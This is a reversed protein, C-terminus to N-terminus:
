YSIFCVHVISYKKLLVTVSVLIPAQAEAIGISTEINSIRCYRCRYYYRHKLNLSVSVTVQYWLSFYRHIIGIGFLVLLIPWKESGCVIWFYFYFSNKIYFYQICCKLALSVSVSVLISSQSGAIGISPIPPWLISSHFRYYWRDRFWTGM